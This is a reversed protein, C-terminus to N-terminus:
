FVSYILFYSLGTLFMALFGWFVTKKLVASGFAIVILFKVLANSLTAILITNVAIFSDGGANAMKAMSLTIADVDTIGSIAGAIHGRPIGQRAM